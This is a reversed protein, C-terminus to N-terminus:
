VRPPTIYSDWDFSDIPPVPGQGASPVNEWPDQEPEEEEEAPLNEKEEQIESLLRDNIIQQAKLYLM